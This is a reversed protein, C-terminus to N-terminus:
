PFLDIDPLTRYTKGKKSLALVEACKWDLPIYGEKWILNFLELFFNLTSNPM